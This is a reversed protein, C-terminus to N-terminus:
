EAENVLNVYKPVNQPVYYPVTWWSASISFLHLKVTTKHSTFSKSALNYNQYKKTIKTM